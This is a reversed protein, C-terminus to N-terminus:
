SSVNPVAKQQETDGLISQLLRKTVAWTPACEEALRTICRDCMPGNKRARRSVHAADRVRSTDAMYIRELDYFSQQARREDLM